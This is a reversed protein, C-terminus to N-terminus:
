LKTAWGKCSPRGGEAALSAARQLEAVVLRRLLRLALLAPVLTNTCSDPPRAAVGRLWPLRPLPRGHTSAPPPALLPPQLTSVPPQRRPSSLSSLRHSCRRRRLFPILLQSFLPLILHPHSRRPHHPDSCSVHRASCGSSAIRPIGRIFGLTKWYLYTFVYLLIVYVYCM